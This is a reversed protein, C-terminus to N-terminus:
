AYERRTGQIFARPAARLGERGTHRRTVHRGPALAVPRIHRMMAGHLPSGPAKGQTVALGGVIARICGGVADGILHASSFAPILIAFPLM